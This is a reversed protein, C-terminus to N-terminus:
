AEENDILSGLRRLPSASQIEHDEVGLEEEKDEERSM